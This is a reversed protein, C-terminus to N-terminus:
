GGTPLHAPDPLHPTTNLVPRALHVDARERRTRGLKFAYRHVGRHRLLRTGTTELATQLWLRMDEGARPVPAGLAVLQEAAYRSGQEQRRIKQAAREHLVTGDRLVRLTRAATRGTYLANSAQYIVGTHGVLVRAGHADTRPVPDAFSLVGRVGAAALAELTRALFWSESNSPCADLLVFRSCVLSEVSPVLEPFSATLVSPGAPTGFVAIGVLEPEPGRVDLLKYRYSASPYSGSYHHTIVFAKATNEDAPEVAYWRPDFGGQSTHVWSPARHRWRRCWASATAGEALESLPLMEQVGRTM